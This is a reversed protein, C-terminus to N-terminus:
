YGIHLEFGFDKGLSRAAAQMEESVRVSRLNELSLLPTLDTLGTDWCIDMELIEPHQEVFTKFGQNDWKCDCIQARMIPTHKLLDIWIHYDTGDIDLYEFYPVAALVSYDEPSLVDTMREIELTFHDTDGWENPQECYTFDIEGIPSIDTIPNNQLRLQTLKKLKQVGDISAVNTNYIGINNLEPLNFLPSIDTIEYCDQLEINRLNPQREAGNVSTIPEMYIWLWELREMVPLSTLDTMTGQSLPIRTDTRENRIYGERVGNNWEDEYRYYSWPDFAYDGAIMIRDVNNLLTQPLACFEQCTMLPLSYDFEASEPLGALPSYDEVSTGDLNLYRLNYLNQVGDVSAVSTNKLNIGTLTQLTFAASADTLTGSERVTLHELSELYQIGELTTLPQMALDLSRLGTLNKLVTLDTLQTGYEILVPAEEATDNRRLYLAPPNTSWDEEIRYKHSDYLIDGAMCFEDLQALISKPLTELEDLSLLVFDRVNPQWDGDPYSVEYTQFQRKEVLEAAQEELQPPVILHGGRLVRFLPILNPINQQNAFDFDYEQKIDLEELCSLDPMVSEDIWNFKLFRANTQSFDPLTYTGSLEIRELRMGNLASWDTLRPCGEVYLQGRGKGFNKLNQIGELSTLYQCNLLSLSTIKQDLGALSTLNGYDITLSNYIPPLASLDVNSCDYLNLNRFTTNQIHPLVLRSFDRGNLNCHVSDFWEIAELGSYDTIINSSFHLIIDKKNQIDNLFNLNTINATHTSIERLKPLSCLPTLDRLNDNFGGGMYFSQLATCGSVASIDYLSINEMSVSRLKKLNEVGSLTGISMNEMRLEELATCGSLFSLSRVPVGVIELKKLKKCGSLSFDDTVPMNNLHAEELETCRNLGSLDATSLHYGNGLVLWRLRPPCFGSFDAERSYVLDIHASNFNPCDTLPSFDKVDSGHYEIFHLFSGRLWELSGIENDCYFVGTLKKLGALNPVEASVKCFTVFRLNPLEAIWNLDDYHTLPFEHGDEQSLWRAGEDTWYRYSFAGYGRSFGTDTYSRDDNTYWRYTDGVFVIEVIKEVDEPPIDGPVVPEEAAAIPAATPEPTAEAAPETEGKGAFARYLLIGAAALLIVAAALIILRWVHPIVVGPRKLSDAIRGALDEVTYREAFITNRALIANEILAPPTSGDLNVPIISCKQADYRLFDDIAPSDKTLNDSLFFLVIDNQKPTKATSVSLGEKRLAELIPRVIQEDEQVFLPYLNQKAM